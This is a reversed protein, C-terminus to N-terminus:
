KKTGSMAMEGFAGANVSGTLVGDVVTAKGELKMPMPVTMNMVWTLENGDIKGNELEMSGMAGENTGTFTDGDTVITVVSQQDGMPSKTVCDYSGDISM